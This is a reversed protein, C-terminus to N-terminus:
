RPRQDSAASMPTPGAGVFREVLRRPAGIDGVRLEGIWPKAHPNQFGVKPAVFTYTFDARFTPTGPEGSNADLGSPVDIAFKHAPAANLRAIVGDLPPRPNGRAGIGLLADVVWEAGALAEDLREQDRPYEQIHVIPMGSKQTIALNAAADPPSNAIDGVLVIRVSYGRLDLHRAVVLGDGGNNGRGCVIAVPGTVGLRELWDACGRGANEMLIIGPVGFEHWAAEDLARVQESTLCGNDLLARGSAAPVRTLDEM